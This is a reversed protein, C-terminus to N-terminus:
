SCLNGSLDTHSLPLHARLNPSMKLVFHWLHLWFLQELRFSVSLPLSLPFSLTDAHYFAQSSHYSMCAEGVRFVRGQARESLADVREGDASCADCIGRSGKVRVQNFPFHQSAYIVLM